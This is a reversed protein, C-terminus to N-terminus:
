MSIGGFAAPYNGGYVQTYPNPTLNSSKEMPPRAGKGRLIKRAITQAKGKKPLMVM